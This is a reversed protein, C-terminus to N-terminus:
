GKFTNGEKTPAGLTIAKDAATYDGPNAPNNEGGALDYTITYSIPTWQAYFTVAETIITTTEAEYGSGDAKSNWGNFVYGTRESTPLVGLEAGYMRTVGAAGPGGNGNYSVNYTLRNYNYKVQTTGDGSVTVSQKAPAKYGEYSLVDPSVKSGTAAKLQYEDELVYSGDLQQLYHSVTYNVEEATWQAYITTNGDGMTDAPDVPDGGSAKTFWGDFIYGQNVPTPLEGYAEGYKREVSAVASGGQVNYTLKYVNRTYQYEVVTSGDAAIVVTQVAPATFGTYSKVKPSIESGTTGKLLESETLEYTGNLTEQYHNVTYNTDTNGAWQAYLTVIDGDGTALNKVAAGNRYSTGSGDAKTNWSGFTYGTRSMRNERLYVSEGYKITMDDMTGTGENAEFHVIYSNQKWHAYYTVNETGYKQNSFIPNGEIPDTFWGLFTYGERTASPLTGIEAGYMGTRSRFEATGGNGDFSATIKKRAYQYEVVTSGDGAITVQQGSPSKFGEYNLVDPTVSSGSEGNLEETDALKYSGDLEEKYHKVTYKTDEVNYWDAILVVENDGMVDYSYARKRTSDDYWGRFVYGEEEMEPLPGYSEGYKRTIPDVAGHGKTSFTINHVNRTYYYEVYSSGDENITITQPQPATFGPYQRVLVSITTGAVGQRYDTDFVYFNGSFDDVYNYVTYEASGKDDQWIAYLNVTEGVASALDKVVEGAEYHMGAGDARTNWEKFRHNKYTFTCEPLSVYEDFTATIPNMLGGGGNPNFEIVYYDDPEEWHAYYTVNGSVPTSSDIMEGSEKDTFWGSLVYGRRTSTPLTGLAAEYYYKKYTSTGGNGNFTVTYQNRDYRYEVLTSGDAAVTASKM